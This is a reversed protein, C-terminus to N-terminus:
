GAIRVKQWVKVERPETYIETKEALERVKQRVEALPMQPADLIRRQWPLFRRQYSSTMGESLWIM